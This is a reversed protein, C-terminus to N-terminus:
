SVQPGAQNLEKLALLEIEMEGLMQSLDSALTVPDVIDDYGYSRMLVSYSHNVRSLCWLWPVSAERPVEKSAKVM